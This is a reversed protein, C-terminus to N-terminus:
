IQEIIVLKNWLITKWKIQFYIPLLILHFDNTQWSYVMFLLIPFQADSAAIHKHRNNLQTPIAIKSVEVLNPLKFFLM